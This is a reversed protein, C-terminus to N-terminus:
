SLIVRWHVSSNSFFGPQDTFHATTGNAVFPVCEDATHCAFNRDPVHAGYRLLSYARGAALNHVTLNAHMWAPEKGKSVNPEEWEGVSVEVRVGPALQQQADAPGLIVLGFEKKPPLCYAAKGNNCEKRTAVFADYSVNYRCAEPTKEELDYFLLRDGSGRSDASGDSSYGTVPVIHDYEDDDAGNVYICMIAPFGADMHAAIWRFFAKPQPTPEKSDQWVTFNLRLAELATAANCEKTSECILLQSGTGAAKRVM